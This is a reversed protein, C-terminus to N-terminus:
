ECVTCVGDAPTHGAIEAKEGDKPCEKWHQTANSKWNGSFDHSHKPTNNPTENPCATFGAAMGFVMAAVLAAFGILKITKKMFFREKM